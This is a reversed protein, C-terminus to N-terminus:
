GNEKTHDAIAGTSRFDVVQMFSENTSAGKADRNIRNTMKLNIMTLCAIVGSRVTAM